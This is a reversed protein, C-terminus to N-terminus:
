NIVRIIPMNIPTGSTTFASPFPIVINKWFDASDTASYAKGFYTGSYTVSDVVFDAHNAAIRASPVQCTVKYIVTSILTFLLLQSYMRKM